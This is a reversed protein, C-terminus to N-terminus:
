QSVLGLETYIAEILLEAQPYITKDTLMTSIGISDAVDTNTKTDDVFLADQPAVKFHDLTQQFYAPEKKTMGAEASLAVFDFGDYRGPPRTHEAEFLYMDSLLSVKIGAARVKQVLSQMLPHPELATKLTEAEFRSTEPAQRCELIRAVSQVYDSSSSDGRGLAQSFPSIQTRQQEDPIIGFTNQMIRDFSGADYAFSYVGGYDLILLRYFM